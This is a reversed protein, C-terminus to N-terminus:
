WPFWILRWSWPRLRWIAGTHAAHDVPYQAATCLLGGWVFKQTKQSELCSREEGRTKMKQKKNKCEFGFSDVLWRWFSDANFCLLLSIQSCHNLIFFYFLSSIYWFKNEEERIGDWWPDISYMGERSPEWCPHQGSSLIYCCGKKDSRKM